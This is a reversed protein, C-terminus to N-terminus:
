EAGDPQGGILEIANECDLALHGYRPDTDDWRDRLQAEDLINRLVVVSGFKKAAGSIRVLAEYDLLNNPHKITESSNEM